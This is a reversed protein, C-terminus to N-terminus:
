GTLGQVHVRLLAHQELGRPLGQLPRADVGGRELAAPGTDEGTHHVM